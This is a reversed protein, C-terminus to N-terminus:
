MHKHSKQTKEKRTAQQRQRYCITCNNNINRDNMKARASSVFNMMFIIASKMNKYLHLKKKKTYYKKMNNENMVHIKMM